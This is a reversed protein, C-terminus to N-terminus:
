LFINGPESTVGVERAVTDGFSRTMALGPVM